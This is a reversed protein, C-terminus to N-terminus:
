RIEPTRVGIKIKTRVFRRESSSACCRSPVVGYSVCFKADILNDIIEAIIIKVTTAGQRQHIFIRQSRELSLLKPNVLVTRAAVASGESLSPRGVPFGSGAERSAM